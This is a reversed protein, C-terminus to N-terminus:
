SLPREGADSGAESDDFIGHYAEPFLGRVFSRADITGKQSTDLSSFLKMVREDSFGINMRTVLHRFEYLSLEGDANGDTIGFLIPIDSASYGWQRLRDRTRHMLLLRDRDQWTQAFAEGVIGLPIAMYLVSVIILMSTILIGADTTPYIDGYGVTTMTVITFWFAIPLSQVNDREVLYILVSFVLAIFFLIFLLVPLAEAALDFAKLLLHFKQFRRLTKLLRLLPVVFLLIGHPVTEVAGDPLVPGYALRLALPAAAFLDVVAYFSLIFVKPNPCSVLRLM